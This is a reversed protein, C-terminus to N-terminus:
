TLIKNLLLQILVKTPFKVESLNWDLICELYEMSDFLKVEMSKHVIKLNEQIQKESFLIYKTKNEGLDITLKNVVFWECIKTSFLKIEKM